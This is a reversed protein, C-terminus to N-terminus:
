TTMELERIRAELDRIRQEYHAHHNSHHQSKSMAFLNEIRNDDKVGNLHHVDWNPPIPGHAAEWVLVHEGIYRPRAKPDPNRIRIYGQHRIRGGKWNPNTERSRFIGGKLLCDRCLAARRDKPGECRPCASTKPQYPKRAASKSQERKVLPKCPSCYLSDSRTAEYPIGCRRCILSRTGVPRYARM